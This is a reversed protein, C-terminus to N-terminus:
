DSLEEEDSFYGSKKIKLKKDKKPKGDDNNDYSGSAVM